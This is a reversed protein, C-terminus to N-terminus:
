SSLWPPLYIRQGRLDFVSGTVVMSFPPHYEKEFEELGRLKKSPVENGSTVGVLVLRSAVEM